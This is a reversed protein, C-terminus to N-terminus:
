SRLWAPRRRDSVGDWCRAMSFRVISTPMGVATFGPHGTAPFPGGHVMSPVVAVGTPMKSEILRGCRTRLVVALRNWAEDDTGGAYMSVTLQGEMREAIAIAEELDAARVFLGVPGFREAGLVEFEKLFGDADVEFITADFRSGPGAPRGGCRLTAGASVMADVGVELTRVAASSFLVGPDAAKCGVVAAEIASDADAGIGIMIGPKTCFQGAGLMISGAWAEGIDSGGEALAGPLAFVPNVSSMELFSPKGAADAASKIALGAVRSGTFGVAAVNPHAILHFGDDPSCHHFYQVTAPHLGAEAVAEAARVALMHGTGPHLPHGKAIVPNGAAIAAAFDGGSVAHFALPFNNPGITFVAGGLPGRDSFIGSEEDVIPHRWSSSSTDRAGAAAKRLQGLMRDFEIVRLRTDLPLGTEQHAMAAIEDRAADLRAAYIELFRAVREPEANAPHRVAARAADAMGELEARSCVPFASDLTEGTSPNTAHFTKNGNGADTWTGDSLITAMRGITDFDDEANRAPVKRLM